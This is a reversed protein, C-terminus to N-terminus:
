CVASAVPDGPHDEYMRIEEAIIGQEKKVTEETFYPNTVFGILEALAEYVHDTASFLYATRDYDTYANADAGLASLRM